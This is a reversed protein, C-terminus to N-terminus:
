FPPLIFRIGFSVSQPIFRTCSLFQLKPSWELSFAVPKRELIYEIGVPIDVSMFFSIRSLQAKDWHGFQTGASIGAGVFPVLRGRETGFRYHYASSVLMFQYEPCFPNVVGASADIASHASFCYRYDAAFLNGIDIGASHRYPRIGRAETMSQVSLMLVM